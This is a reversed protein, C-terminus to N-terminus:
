VQRPQAMAVDSQWMGKKRCNSEKDPHAGLVTESGTRRAASITKFGCPLDREFV